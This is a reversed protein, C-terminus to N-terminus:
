VGFSSFTYFSLSPFFKWCSAGSIERKCRPWLRAEESIVCRCRCPPAVPHKINPSVQRRRAYVPRAACLNMLLAESERAHLLACVCDNVEIQPTHVKCKARLSIMWVCMIKRLIGRRPNDVSSIADRPRLPPDIKRCCQAGLIASLLSLEGATRRTAELFSLDVAFKNGHCRHHSQISRTGPSPAFVLKDQCRQGQFATSKNAPLEM